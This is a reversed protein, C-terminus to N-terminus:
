YGIQTLKFNKFNERTKLIKKSKGFRCSIELYVLPTDCQPRAM